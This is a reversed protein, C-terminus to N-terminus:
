GSCVFFKEIFKCCKSVADFPKNEDSMWNKFEAVWKTIKRSVFKEGRRESEHNFLIGSCAYM